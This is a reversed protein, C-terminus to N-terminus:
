CGNFNNRITTTVMETPIPSASVLNQSSRPPMVKWEVPAVPTAQASANVETSGMVVDEDQPSVPGLDVFMSFVSSKILAYATPRNEPNWALMQFLLNFADLGIVRRVLDLAELVRQRDFALEYEQPRTAKLQQYIIFIGSKSIGPLQEEDPEGLLVFLNWVYKALFVADTTCLFDSSYRGEDLLVSATTSSVARKRRLLTQKDTCADRLADVLSQPPNSLTFLVNTGLLMELIVLGISFLDSQDYFRVGREFKAQKADFLILEPARNFLRTVTQSLRDPNDRTRLIKGLSYDIILPVYFEKGNDVSLQKESSNTIIALQEGPNRLVYRVGDVSYVPPYSFRDPNKTAVVNVSALDRHQIGVAHMAALASLLQFVVSLTHTRAVAMPVTFREGRKVTTQEADVLAPYMVKNYFGDGDKAVAAVAAASAKSADPVVLIKTRPQGTPAGFKKRNNVLRLDYPAEFFTGLEAYEMSIFGIGPYRGEQDDQTIAAGRPIDHLRLEDLIYDIMDQWDKGTAGTTQPTKGSRAIKQLAAANKNNNDTSVPLRVSQKILTELLEQFSERPVQGLRLREQQKVPDSTGYYIADVSRKTPALVFWDHLTAFNPSLGGHVIERKIMSHIETEVFYAQNYGSVKFIAPVIAGQQGSVDYVLFAAGYTGPEGIKKAYKYIKEFDRGRRELPLQKGFEQSSVDTPHVGHYKVGDGYLFLDSPTASFEGTSQKRFSEGVDWHLDHVVIADSVGKRKQLKRAVVSSEYYERLLERVVKENDIQGFVRFTDKWANNERKEEEAAAAAM